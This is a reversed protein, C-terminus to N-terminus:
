NADNHEKVIKVSGLGLSHSGSSLLPNTSGNVTLSGAQNFSHGGSSTQATGSAISSSVFNTLALDIGSFYQVTISTTGSINTAIDHAVFSITKTQGPTLTTVLQFSNGANNFTLTGDDTTTVNATDASTTDDVTGDITVSASTTNFNAGGNTTIVPNDPSATDVIINKTLTASGVVLGNVDVPALEVAYTNDTLAGSNFSFTLAGSCTPNGVVVSNLSVQISAMGRSCNGALNIYAEKTYVDSSQTIWGSQAVSNISTLTLNFGTDTGDGSSSGGTKLCGTFVFHSVCIVTLFQTVRKLAGNQSDTYVNKMTFSNPLVKQFSLQCAYCFAFSHWLKHLLLRLDQLLILIQRGMVTCVM